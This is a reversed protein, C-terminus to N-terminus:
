EDADDDGDQGGDPQKKMQGLKKKLARREEKSLKRPGANAAAPAPSAAVAPKALTAVGGSTSSATASPTTTRASAAPQTTPPLAPEPVKGHAPHVTVDGNDSSSSDAEARKAPKRKPKPPEQSILGQADLIVHRGHLVTALLLLLHGAMKAGAAVMVQRSGEGAVMLGFHCATALAYSLSALILAVCSARCPWMDVLLRLGVAGFLFFGLIV